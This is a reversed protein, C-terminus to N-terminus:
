DGKRNRPYIDNECLREADLRAKHLEERAIDYGKSSLFDMFRKEYEAYDETPDELAISAVNANFYLKLMILRVLEEPTLSELMIQPKATLAEAVTCLAYKYTDHYYATNKLREIDEWTIKESSIYNHKPEKSEKLAKELEDWMHEAKM